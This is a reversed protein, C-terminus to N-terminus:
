GHPITRRELADLEQFAYDLKDSMEDSLWMVDEGDLLPKFHSLRVGQGGPNNPDVPLFIDPCDHSRRSTLTGYPIGTREALEGLTVRGYISNVFVNNRKNRANETRTVWHCNEPSYPGDNDIRDLELGRQYIPSMDIFFNQFSEKWRDCVYIGRGGYNPYAPDTERYCRDRMHTWIGYMPHKHSMGHTTANRALKESTYCGCSPVEKRLARLPKVTVAGCDCLCLWQPLGKPTDTMRGLAILRGFRQGIIDPVKTHACGCSAVTGHRLCYDNAVFENGCDCQCLWQKAGYSGDPIQRIVELKKYRYGPTIEKVLEKTKGM